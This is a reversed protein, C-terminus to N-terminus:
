TGIGCEYMYDLWEVGISSGNLAQSMIMKHVGFAGLLICTSNFISINSLCENYHERLFNKTLIFFFMQINVCYM